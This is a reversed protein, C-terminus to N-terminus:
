KVPIGKRRSAAKETKKSAEDATKPPDIEDKEFEGPTERNSDDRKPAGGGFLTPLQDIPSNKEISPSSANTKSDDSKEGTVAEKQDAKALKRNRNYERGREPIADVEFRSVLTGGSRAQQLAQVVDPYDGGVEAIARIVEDVSNKVTVTRDREKAAFRSVRIQGDPQSKVIISNGAELTIPLEFKQGEGFLVVEPRFSHTVHVMAPGASPIVHLWFKESLHEGRLQPDRENMAWLARFAGYRTEASPVDFLERLADASHVDNLACLAALAFARFAPEKKAAEALAPAASPQDLYALAEAAYFRVEPDNSTLGKQLQPIGDKGIAELKIAAVQATIPDILQQELLKLRELQQSPSESVPVARIVHFYRSLNQKYRPHILLDIRDDSQPNAIGQKIGRAYTHFRRNLADGIQKSRYVSKETPALMLALPRSKLSVGGGLVLGRKLAMPDKSNHAVPDVLVPGQAIAMVHGERTQGGLMAMQRLRTEMMWGGSISTTDNQPPVRVEIDIRDGKQVGPPLYAQAWAMSNNPDALLKNPSQVKRAQMDSMLEARQPGPPPDSGTGKLGTILVPGEIRLYNTGIPVAYDGVLKSQAEGEKGDVHEPSQSRSRLVSGTCGAALALLLAAVVAAFQRCNPKM